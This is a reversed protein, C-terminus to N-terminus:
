GRIILQYLLELYNLYNHTLEWMCINDRKTVRKLICGGYCIPLFTCKRCKEISFPDINWKTLKNEFLTVKGNKDINGVYGSDECEFSEGCKFIKGDPSIIM